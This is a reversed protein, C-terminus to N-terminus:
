GDAENVLLVEGHVGNDEGDAQHENERQRADVNDEAEDDAGEDAAHDSVDRRFGDKGGKGVGADGCRVAQGLQFIQDLDKFFADGGTGGGRQRIRHQAREGDGNGIGTQRLRHRVEDDAAGLM